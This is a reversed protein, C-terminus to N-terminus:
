LNPLIDNCSQGIRDSCLYLNSSNYDLSGARRKIEEIEVCFARIDEPMCVSSCKDCKYKDYLVQQVYSAREEIDKINDKYVGISSQLASISALLKEQITQADAEVM